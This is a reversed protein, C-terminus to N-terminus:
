IMDKFECDGLITTLQASVGLVGTNVMFNANWKEVGYIGCDVCCIYIDVFISFM